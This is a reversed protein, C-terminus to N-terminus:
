TRSTSIGLIQNLGTVIAVCQTVAGSLAAMSATAQSSGDSQAAMAFAIMPSLFPYLAAEAAIIESQMTTSAQASFLATAVNAQTQFTM